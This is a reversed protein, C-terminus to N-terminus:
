IGDNGGVIGDPSDNIVAYSLGMAPRSQLSSWLPKFFQFQIEVELIINLPGGATDV